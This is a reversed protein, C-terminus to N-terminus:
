RSPPRRGVGARDIIGMRSRSVGGLSISRLKPFPSLRDNLIPYLISNAVIACTMIEETVSWPAEEEGHEYLAGWMDKDILETYTPETNYTGSYLHLHQIHELMSNGNSLGTHISSLSGISCKTYLQPAFIEYFM